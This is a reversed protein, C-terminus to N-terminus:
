IFFRNNIDRSIRIGQTASIRIDNALTTDGICNVNYNRVNWCNKRDASFLLWNTDRINMMAELGDRAIQIAEIKNGTSGALKQSSNM